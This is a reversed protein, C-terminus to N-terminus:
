KKGALKTEEPAGFLAPANDMCYNMYAADRKPSGFARRLLVKDGSELAADIGRASIVGDKPDFYRHIVEAGLHM